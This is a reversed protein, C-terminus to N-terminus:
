FTNLLPVTTSLVTFATSSQHFTNCTSFAFPFPWSLHSEAILDVEHKGIEKTHCRGKFAFKSSNDTATPM